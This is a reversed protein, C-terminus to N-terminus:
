ERLWILFQGLDSERLIYEGDLRREINWISHFITSATGNGPFPSGQGASEPWLERTLLTISSRPAQGESVRRLADVMRAVDRRRERLLNAVLGALTSSNLQPRM